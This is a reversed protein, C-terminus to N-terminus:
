DKGNILMGNIINENTSTTLSKKYQIANNLLEHTEMLEFNEPLFRLNDVVFVNAATSIVVKVIGPSSVCLTQMQSTVYITDTDLLNEQADFAELLIETNIPADELGCGASIMVISVPMDFLITEPTTPIGGDSMIARNNFALFNPTSHGYVNFNGCENLIAAGNTDGPGQFTVGMHAYEDTLRVTEIFVCPANVDDFDITLINEWWLRPYDKGENIWWIEETGNATEGVFDWGANTFTNEKQMDITTKGKVGFYTIQGSSEIDLFSSIIKPNRITSKGILGGSNSGSIRGTAYCNTISGYIWAVLGGNNKPGTLNAQSYCNNIAGYSIGVLGGAGAESYINGTSYSNIITGYNTEVLAGICEEGAIINVDEIGIYKILGHYGVEDFLCTNHFVRNATGKFNFIIHGNGNFVGDFRCYSGISYFKNYALNIDRILKFHKDMLRPNSGIDNLDEATAILYPDTETGSGGSFIPLPSLQGLQWWLIPYGGTEPIAWIDSPGDTKGVFDWGAKRFTNPDKLQATTARNGGSSTVQGSIQIDWFSNSVDNVDYCTGVLGGTDKSYTKGIVQGTSYCRNILGADYNNGVLGGVIITGLVNGKSYSDSIEGTNHGVLGGASTRPATGTVNCISYCMKISGLSSNTGVIGGANSYGNILGTSFCNLITGQNVSAFSGAISCSLINVDIIGLNKIEGTDITGFLGVYQSNQINLNSITHFNGDFVGKFPTGDFLHHSDNIDPAIVAKSFVYGALDIDATMIFHKDYDNPENGLAILDEATAIQYPNNPEGTGGSYQAKAPFILFSMIILTIFSQFITSNRLDSM